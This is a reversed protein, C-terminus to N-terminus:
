RRWEARGNTCSLRLGEIRSAPPLSNGDRDKLARINNNDHHLEIDADENPILSSAARTVNGRVFGEYMELAALPAVFRDNVALECSELIIPTANRLHISYARANPGGYEADDWEGIALELMGMPQGHPGLIEVRDSRSWDPKSCSIYQFSAVLLVIGLGHARSFGGLTRGMREERPRNEELIRRKRLVSYM